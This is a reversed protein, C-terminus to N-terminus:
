LAAMGGTGGGCSNYGFIGGLWVLSYTKRRLWAALYGLWVLLHFCGHDMSLLVLLLCGAGWRGFSSFMIVLTVEVYYGNLGVEVSPGGLVGGWQLGNAVALVQGGLGGGAVLGM